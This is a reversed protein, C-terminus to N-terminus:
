RKLILEIGNNLVKTFYKEHSYPERIRYRIFNKTYRPEKIPKLNYKRLWKNAESESWIYRDFIVAQLKSM